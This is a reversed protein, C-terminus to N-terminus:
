RLLRLLRRELGEKIERRAQEANTVHLLHVYLVRRDRSIDVSLTGPTLTILNSLATIEADSEVDLPVEVVASHLRATPSLVEWAVRLNAVMLEYLFYFGFGIGRLVRVHYASRDHADRVFYLLAYGLGYGVALSRLSFVGTLGAWAVALLLNWIFLKM